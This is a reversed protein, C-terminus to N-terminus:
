RWSIGAAELALSEHHAASHGVVVGLENGAGVAKVVGDSHRSQGLEAPVGIRRGLEIGLQKSEELITRGSQWDPAEAFSRVLQNSRHLYDGWLGPNETKWEEYAAVASVTRTQRPGHVLSIPPLWPVDIREVRPTWGGTFMITGGYTSVAVDYGSGRGGQAARHAGLATSFVLDEGPRGENDTTAALWLASLLVVAAASSGLGQKRGSSNFFARTDLEIIAGNSIGLEAALHDAARGFLSDDGPWHLTAAGTHGSATMGNQGPVLTGHARVDPALAIGLGGEELVAYEGALLLNAPASLQIM